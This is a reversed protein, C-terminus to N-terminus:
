WAGPWAAYRNISTYASVLKKSVESTHRRHWHQDALQTILELDERTGTWRTKALALPRGRNAAFGLAWMRQIIDRRNTLRKGTAVDYVGEHEKLCLCARYSYYGVMEGQLTSDLSPRPPSSSDLWKAHDKLWQDPFLQGAVRGHKGRDPGAVQVTYPKLVVLSQQHERAVSLCFDLNAHSQEVAAPAHTFEHLRDGDRTHTEGYYGGYRDRKMRRRIKQIDYISQYNLM